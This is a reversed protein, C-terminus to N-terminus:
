LDVREAEEGALDAVGPVVHEPVDLTTSRDGVVLVVAEEGGGAEHDVGGALGTPAARDAGTDFDAESRAPRDGEFVVVQEHAVAGVGEGGRHAAENRAEDGAALAD